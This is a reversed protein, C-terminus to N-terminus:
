SRACIRLRSEFVPEGHDSTNPREGSLRDQLPCRQPRSRAMLQWGSAYSLRRRADQILFLIWHDHIAQRSSCQLDDPKANAPVTMVKEWVDTRFAPIQVMAWSRHWGAAEEGVSRRTHGRSGRGSRLQEKPQRRLAFRTWRESSLPVHRWTRPASSLALRAFACLATCM